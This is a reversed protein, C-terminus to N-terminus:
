KKIKNNIEKIWCMWLIYLYFMFIVFFLLSPFYARCLYKCFNSFLIGNLLVYDVFRHIYLIVVYVFYNLFFSSSFIYCNQHSSHCDALHKLMCLSTLISFRSTLLDLNFCYYQNPTYRPMISRWFTCCLEIIHAVSWVSTHKSSGYHKCSYITAQLLYRGYYDANLLAMTLINNYNCTCISPQSVSPGWESQSTSVLFIQIVWLYM